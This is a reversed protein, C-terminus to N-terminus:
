EFIFKKFEYDTFGGDRDVMRLLKFASTKMDLVLVFRSFLIRKQKKAKDTVPTVTISLQTGTKQISVDPLKTIDTTGGNIISTLVTHFTAFQPNKKSDTSHEKGNVTMTFRTGKMVLKDLGENTSISVLDPRMIIAGGSTVIDKKLGKKHQTKTVNAGAQKFNKFRACAKEFDTQQASATFLSLNFTFLIMLVKVWGNKKINYLTIM